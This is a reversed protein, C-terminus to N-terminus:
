PKPIVIFTVEGNPADMCAQIYARICDSQLVRCGPILAAIALAIRAAAMTSPVSGLDNFAAWEGTATKIAHGGLVIRGKWRHNNVDPDEYNKM